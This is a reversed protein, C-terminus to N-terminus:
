GEAELQRMRAQLLGGFNQLPGNMVGLLRQIPAQMQGLLQAVLQPKAPLTALREVESTPLVNGEGLLAGQIQLVSRTTRIFDNITKAADVPDDYGFAVATPGAVIGKLEPRNAADAALNLLTNKTVLFEVGGERMRRRLDTMENVSIGRYGTSVVISCSELKAKLEAVQDVKAQTPM